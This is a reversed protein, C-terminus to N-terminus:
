AGVPRKEAPRAEAPQKGHPRAEASQEGAPAVDAAKQPRRRAGTGAGTPAASPAARSADTLIEVDDDNSWDWVTVFPLSEGVEGSRGAGADEPM